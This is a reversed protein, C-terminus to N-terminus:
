SGGSGPDRCNPCLYNELKNAEDKSVGVCSGHFWGECMDCGVMFSGDEVRGRRRQRRALVRRDPQRRPGVIPEEDVRVGVHQEDVRM